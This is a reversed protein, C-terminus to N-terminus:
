RSFLLLDSQTVGTNKADAMATTLQKEQSPIWERRMVRPRTIFVSQIPTKSALRKRLVISMEDDSIRSYLKKATEYLPINLSVMEKIETIM